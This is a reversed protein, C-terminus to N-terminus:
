PVNAVERGARTGLENFLQYDIGDSLFRVSGDGLCFTAGGPHRSKFGGRLWWETGNQAPDDNQMTNLPISTSAVNFNVAYVSFFACQRPLTEGVMLTNSSGDRIDAISIAKKYRM